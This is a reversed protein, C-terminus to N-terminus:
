KSNYWDFVDTQIDNQITDINQSNIEYVHANKTNRMWTLQNKAYKYIAIPLHIDLYEKSIEENLYRNVERYVLGISNLIEDSYQTKLLKVEEILGMNLKEQYWSNIRLRLIETDPKLYIFFCDYKNAVPENKQLKQSNLLVEIARIIRRPNNQDSFNLSLYKESSIKNLYATLESITKKALKDRLKKDPAIELSEISNLLSSVYLGTGGAIIAVDKTKFINNLVEQTDRNFDSVSYTQDPSVVDYLNVKINEIVWYRKEKKVLDLKSFKGTGIDLSKIVQRSDASIIETKLKKALKISLSTKGSTTPGYIIILKNKM